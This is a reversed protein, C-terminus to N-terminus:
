NAQLIAYAYTRLTNEYRIEHNPRTGVRAYRMGRAFCHKLCSVHPGHIEGSNIHRISWTMGSVEKM